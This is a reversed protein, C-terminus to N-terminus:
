PATTAATFHTAIETPTLARGFIAVDDIDGTFNQGSAGPWTTALTDGGIRWYGTYAGASTTDAREARLAGDVYLRMGATGLTAVVHHWRGDNYAGPSSIVRAVNPYVGFRVKGDAGLYVHRDYTSSNGTAADGFGIIKGGATSTTKFWGEITFRNSPTQPATAVVRSAAAGTFRAAKNTDGIVAGPVARTVASGVTSSASGTWDQAPGSTEGLRWFAAPNDLLTERAYPSLAGESTGAVTVPVPATTTSNGFADKMVVRYSYTQGNVLGSDTFSIRTQQWFTSQATTQYVPTPSGDRLVAYTLTENDRDWNVPWSVQATGAAKSTAAPTLTSGPLQPGQKNLSKGSVAMRVLGQQGTGNVTLFEGGYVVYDGSGTVSWAAQAQGTFTGESLDPFFTLMTPTRVNQWDYYNAVANPTIAAAAAKKTFAVGFQYPGDPFAGINTCDHPHAALYVHDKGPNPYVSYSDGHCDQVWALAGTMPDAAFVGELNGAGGGSILVFGTGYVLTGDTSLSTIGANYGSNQVRANAAWPLVAGTSTSVAGSGKAPINNLKDFRGAVILRSNDPSLVMAEVQASQASVKWSTLAGTTATVAALRSRAIGATSTFNGGFFITSTTAAIARVAANPNPAFGAVRAGTARNLVVFRNQVAGNVRTFDGGVYLRTGDPSAAIVFAPGNLAPAWSSVLKGSALDYALLNSRTVTATGEAAGAPRATTFEGAVYVTGAVIVQSWAVGDIQVTPLADAAVTTATGPEVPASDASGPALPSALVSCAVLVVAAVAGVAMRVAARRGNSRQATGELMQLGGGGTRVPSTGRRFCAAYASLLPVAVGRPVRMARGCRSPSVSDDQVVVVIPAACQDLQDGGCSDAVGVPDATVIGAGLRNQVIRVAEHM